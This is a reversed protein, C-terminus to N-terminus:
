NCRFDDALTTLRRDEDRRYGVPVKGLHPNRAVAAQTTASWNAKIRELYDEAQVSMVNLVIKGAQQESDVGDAVGVLRAGADRLRKAAVITETHDRGFRDIRHVLVGRSEGREARQILDELGRHVVPRAGSVDEEKVVKGLTVGNGKAWREIDQM